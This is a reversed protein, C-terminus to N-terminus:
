YSFWVENVTGHVPVLLLPLCEKVETLIGKAEHVDLYYNCDDDDDDDDDDDYNININCM